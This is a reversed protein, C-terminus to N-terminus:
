SSNESKDPRADYSKETDEDYSEKVNEERFRKSYDEYSQGIFERYSKKLKDGRNFYQDYFISPADAGGAYLHGEIDTSHLSAAWGFQSILVLTACLIKKSKM